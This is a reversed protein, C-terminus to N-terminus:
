MDEETNENLNNNIKKTKEDWYWIPIRHEFIRINPYEKKLDQNMNDIEKYATTKCVGLAVAIDKVTYYEQEKM